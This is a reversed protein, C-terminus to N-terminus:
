IPSPSTRGYGYRDSRPMRSRFDSSSISFENQFSLRKSPLDPYYLPYGSASSASVSSTSRRDSYDKGTSVQSESELFRAPYHSHVQVRSRDEIYPSLPFQVVYDKSFSLKSGSQAYSASPSQNLQEKGSLVATNAFALDPRTATLRLGSGYINPGSLAQPFSDSPLRFLASSDIPVEAPKLPARALATVNLTGQSDPMKVLEQKISIRARRLSELVSGLSSGTPRPIKGRLDKVESFEKNPIKEDTIPTTKEALSSSLIGQDPFNVLSNRHTPKEYISGKLDKRSTKNVAMADYQQEMLAQAQLLHKPHDERIEPKELGSLIKINNQPPIILAKSVTEALGDSGNKSSSSPPTSSIGPSFEDSTVKKVSVECNRCRGANEDETFSIDKVSIKEEEQQPIWARLNSNDSSFNGNEVANPQNGPEHTDLISVKTENFKEEWEKQANEMAQFQIILQAQQELAREMDDKGGDKSERNQVDSCLSSSSDASFKDMKSESAELRCEHKEDFGDSHTVVGDEHAHVLTPKQSENDSASGVDPKKIKRCSKGTRRSSSKLTSIFRSRERHRNQKTKLKEQSDLDSGHSKWSLCNYDSSSGDIDSCSLGDDVESRDMRTSKLFKDEKVDKSIIYQNGEQDNLQSNEQETSSDTLGSNCTIGQTELISLVEEAAKEAKRRQVNVIRLQEELEIVRRSLIEARQKATKSVIRESLLRARLFEVTMATKEDM